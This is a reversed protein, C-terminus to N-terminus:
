DFITNKVIDVADKSIDCRLLYIPVAGLLKDVADLCIDMMEPYLSKRLESLLRSLAMVGSIRSISCSEGRELFVIAALPANKNCNIDTKGSWPTGFAIPEDGNFVIAPMDDNIIITDDYYKQWLSTHTSKGTGSPASFLVGKGKYSIASSHLMLGGRRLVSYIFINGIAVFARRDLTIDFDNEFDVLRLRVNQWQRDAEILSLLEGTVPHKQFATYGKDNQLWEWHHMSSIIKGQPLKLSDSVSFDIWVDYESNETCSYEKMRNLYYSYEQGTIKFNIGAINYLKVKEGKSSKPILNFALPM